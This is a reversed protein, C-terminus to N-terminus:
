VYRRVASYVDDLSIATVCVFDKGCEEVDHYIQCGACPVKRSVIVGSLEQGWESWNVRASHISVVPVGRLAALHKPGSDNGVYVSCFSLLADFDDFPLQRDIVILRDSGAVEPSLGDRLDRRDAFLVVKLDTDRHLREALAAYQGWRSFVIRAGTHLVAFRDQAGIGFATLRDRALDDRRMVRAESRLLKPLRDIMTLVRTSHTAQERGNKPDRYSDDVSATLRLWAPDHFGYQFRAGSLALLSRAMGSQALDVALDFGYAALQERLAHQAELSLLRTRLSMSERLDVAITEDFVGLTRALDINAYGFLGVLKAEPFAERLRLIAPISAVLDGLQDPRVVLITRIDPLRDPRAAEHMASPLANVRDEITGEAGPQLTVIGDSDPYDQESLPPEVVFDQFLSRSKLDADRFRLELGYRGPAFATFDAWINFVYKHIRTRDPEFELEYPGKLPGLHIPLGNVLATLQTLPEASICFGRIAEVGRAVPLIGWYTNMEVGFQRILISPESRRLATAFPRPLQEAALRTYDRAFDPDFPHRRPDGRFPDESRVAFEMGEGPMRWGEDHVTQLEHAPVAWGPKLAAARRYAEVAEALRGATKYFHGLQLALDADGPMLAAAADYHLEAKALEGAEKFMHGAQVHWPGHAPRISLAEVYLAAADRFRGEVSALAARRAFIRAPLDADSSRFPNRLPM